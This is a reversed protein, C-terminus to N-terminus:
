DAMIGVSYTEISAPSSYLHDKSSAECGHQSNIAKPEIKWLLNGNGSWKVNAGCSTLAFGPNINEASQPHNTNGSEAKSIDVIINGINPIFEKIGIAYVDISAPSLKGHDKSKARWSFANEPYSATAINGYGSWDVDFGGGILSYGEPVSTSVDPHSVYDSAAVNVHMHEILEQRTLGEVKLGIAWATINAQDVRLHDKTSVLWASLKDNPYSATILNGTPTRKGKVGGGVVVFQDPVEIAFDNYHSQFTGSEKEFVAITIKGSADKHTNIQQAPTAHSTLSLLHSSIVLGLPMMIKRLM